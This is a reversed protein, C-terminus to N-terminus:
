DFWLRVLVTSFYIFEIVLYLLVVQLLFSSFGCWKSDHELLLSAARRRRKVETPVIGAKVQHQLKSLMRRAQVDKGALDEWEENAGEEEKNGSFHQHIRKFVVGSCGCFCIGGFLLGFTLADGM